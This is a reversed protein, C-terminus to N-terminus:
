GPPAGNRAVAVSLEGGGAGDRREDFAGCAFTLGEYVVDGGGVEVRERHGRRGVSDVGRRARILDGVAAGHEQVDDLLERLVKAVELDGAVDQERAASARISVSRAWSTPNVSGHAM